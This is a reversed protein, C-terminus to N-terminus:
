RPLAQGRKIARQLIRMPSIAELAVRSAPRPADTIQAVLLQALWPAFTFGRSGLGGIVFVGQLVPTDVNVAQGTGLPALAALAADVDPLPGAIPLRDPTTARIGARSTIQANRVQAQWWPSLEALAGANKARAAQSTQAGSKGVTEFTAGWLRDTGSALGYHGSAVASSPAQPADTVFEVQGLKGVLGLWPAHEALDMGNALIIADFAQGNVRRGSLNNDVPGGFVGEIGELLASILRAPRVILARNHLLGGNALAELDELPLPPDALVKAFREAEDGGRPDQRVEVAEVSDMGAFAQRSHLYADILLRAQATDAADLRPMILALPNGSAAGAPQNSDFIVPELGAGACARAMCAGAIGAGIIAVRNALPQPARLAFTDTRPRPTDKFVAELRDRKRGFGPKKSVEFGNQGLGDRVARAVTFTAAVAGPASREAILPFLAEDWMAGNRSPSFGDLFWADARFEAMPLASAIDDIHLTLTLKAEPWSIRRVGRARHPWRALLQEALPALEPWASLARAADERHLPFGEFSVFHLWASERKESTQWLEWLALFNLGTGFGTEAVTFSDRDAWRYPLGCGTLFVARTEELGDATSFYVDDFGRAVPTGDPKWDLDPAPPLRSM